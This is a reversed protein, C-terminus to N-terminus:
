RRGGARVYAPVQRLEIRLGSPVGYGVNRVKARRAEQWLAEM